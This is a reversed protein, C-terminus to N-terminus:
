AAVRKLFNEVEGKLEATATEVDLFYHEAGIGRAERCEHALLDHLGAPVYWRAGCRRAM